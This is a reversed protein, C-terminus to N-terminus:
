ADDQQIEHWSAGFIGEAEGDAAPILASHAGKLLVEHDASHVLLSLCLDNASQSVMLLPQDEFFRMVKHLRSLATRAGHGVLNICVCEDFLEVKCRSGLDETLAGLEKRGLHNAKCNVAVTTTTESTAVLDVSIGRRRFIDFVGALFGVEFRTDRNQLLFVAMNQQCTVTKIGVQKSRQSGIRTGPLIRRNLDRIEVPTRTAAAARICQPHVVTAGSAAMELAEAYDV